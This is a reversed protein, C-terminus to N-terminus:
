TKGLLLKIEGPGELEVKYFMGAEKIMGGLIVDDM